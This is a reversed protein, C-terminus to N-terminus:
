ADASARRLHGAATRNPRRARGAGIHTGARGYRGGAAARRQRPVRTAVLLRCEGPAKSVRSWISEPPTVSLSLYIFSLGARLTFLYFISLFVSLINPVFFMPISLFLFVSLINPLISADFCLCWPLASPPVEGRGGVCVCGQARAVSAVSQVSSIILMGCRFQVSSLPSIM